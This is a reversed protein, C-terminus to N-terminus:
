VEFRWAGEELASDAHYEVFRPKISPDSDSKIWYREPQAGTKVRSLRSVWGRLKLAKAYDNGHVLKRVRQSIDLFYCLLDKSSIAVNSMELVNYRRTFDKDPVSSLAGIFVEEWPEMARHEAQLPEFLRKEEEPSIFIDEELTVVRYFAEALLQERNERLRDMDSKTPARTVGITVPVYRRNGTSDKFLRDENTTIIFICQRPHRKDLHAYKACYIDDHMTIFSKLKESEANKFSAGEAIELVWHGALHAQAEKMQTRSDLSPLCASFYPKTALVECFTSKFFGQPGILTIVQDAQCGPEIIRKVMSKLMIGAAAKNAETDEAGLYYKFIDDVRPTKDWQLNELYERIPHMRHNNVYIRLAERVGEESTKHFQPQHRILSTIWSVDDDDLLHPYGM